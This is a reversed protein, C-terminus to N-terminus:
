LKINREFLFGICKSKPFPYIVNDASLYEVKYFNKRYEEISVHGGYNKLLRWSPAEILPLSRSGFVTYYIRNLLAECSTYLPNNQNMKIYALCCNFSCFLGDMLYYDNDVLSYQINSEADTITTASSSDSSGEMAGKQSEQQRKQHAELMRVQQPTINERLVYRDKTIESHYSKSVRPPVYEIPCGIPRYPFSHRCWFCHLNTSEPLLEQNLYSRMTFVCQHDKKSEDLFSFFNSDDKDTIDTIKTKQQMLEEQQGTDQKVLSAVNFRVDLINVDINRLLFVPKKM